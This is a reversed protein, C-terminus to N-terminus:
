EEFTRRELSDETREADEATLVNVQCSYIPLTGRSARNEQAPLLCLFDRFGAGRGDHQRRQKAFAGCPASTAARRM